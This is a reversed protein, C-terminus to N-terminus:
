EIWTLKGSVVVWEGNHKELYVEGGQYVFRFNVVARRMSSDFVISNARPYTECQWYGGWHGHFIKAAKMFFEMRRRSEDKAYAVHMPSETGLDVYENGLFAKLLLAYDKTLYVIKKDPFSVQPRFAINSDVLTSPIIQWRQFSTFWPTIRGNEIEYRLNGLSREYRTSDDAYMQKIRNTYYGELEEPTHPITDAVEIRFLTGQVIFYPYDQYTIRFENSGCGMKDPQLPQYFAKFVKHAEAVWKDPAESENSSVENSWNDFFEYLLAESSDRYARELLAAQAPNQGYLACSVILLLGIVFIRLITM